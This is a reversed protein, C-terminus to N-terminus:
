PLPPPPPPPPPLSTSLPSTPLPPNKTHFPSTNQTDHKWRHVFVNGFNGFGTHSPYPLSFRHTPIDCLHKLTKTIPPPRSAQRRRRGHSAPAVVNWIGTQLLM